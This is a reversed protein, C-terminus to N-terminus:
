GIPFYITTKRGEKEWWKEDNKLPGLSATLSRPHLRKRSPFIKEGMSRRLPRQLNQSNAPRPPEPAAGDLEEFPKAVMTVTSQIKWGGGVLLRLYQTIIYHKNYPDRVLSIIHQQTPPTDLNYIDSKKNVLQQCWKTKINLIHAEGIICFSHLKM